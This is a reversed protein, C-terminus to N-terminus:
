SSLPCDTRTPPFELERSSIQLSESDTWLVGKIFVRLVWNYHLNVIRKNDIAKRIKSQISQFILSIQLSIPVERAFVGDEFESSLKRYVIGEKGIVSLQLGM